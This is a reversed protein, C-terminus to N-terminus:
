RAIVFKDGDDEESDFGDDEPTNYNVNHMRLAKPKRNGDQDYLDISAPVNVVGSTPRESKLRAGLTPGEGRDVLQDDMLHSEMRGSTMSTGRRVGQNKESDLGGSKRRDNIGPASKISLQKKIGMGARERPPPLDSAGESQSSSRIRILSLGGTGVNQQRNKSSEAALKRWKKGAAKATMVLPISLLGRDAEDEISTQLMRELVDEFTIIGLPAHSVPPAESSKAAKRSVEPDPTIIALHSYSAQFLSVMELASKNSDIFLPQQLPLDGIKKKATMDGDDVVILYKTILVGVIHNRNNGRYIPIRSHGRTLILNKVMLNMEMDGSLMFVHEWTRMMDYIASKHLKLIGEVIRTETEDLGVDDSDTDISTMRAIRGGGGSSFSDNSGYNVIGEELDTSSTSSQKKVGNEAGHQKQLDSTHISLLARLESRHAAPEEHEHKGFAYDLVMGIPVAIPFFLNLLGNVLWSLSAAVIIQNPGTFVAAPLIEGCILVASVSMLVATLPDFIEDLFLPLAEAALANALLLTVLLRHHDEILPILLSAANSEEETRATMAKVELRRRDLNLLGMTLGSALAGVLVCFCACFYAIYKPGEEEAEEHEAEM